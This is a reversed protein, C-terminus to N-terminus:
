GMDPAEAAMNQDFVYSAFPGPAFRAFQIVIPRKQASLPLKTFQCKRGLAALRSHRSMPIGTDTLM